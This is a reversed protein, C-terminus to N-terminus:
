LALFVLERVCSYYWIYIEFEDWSESAYSYNDTHLLIREETM